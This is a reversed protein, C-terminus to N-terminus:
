AADRRAARTLRVLELLMAEGADVLHEATIRRGPWATGDRSILPVHVFAALRPGGPAQTAEIGRWCLYNCLYRGADRSARADLGTTRAAR